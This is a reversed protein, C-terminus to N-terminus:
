INSPLQMDNPLLTTIQAPVVCSGEWCADVVMYPFFILYGFSYPIGRGLFPLSRCFTPVNWIDSCTTIKIYHFFNSSVTYIYIVNYIFFRLIDTRDTLHLPLQQRQVTTEQIVLKPKKCKKCSPPARTKKPIIAPSASSQLKEQQEVIFM